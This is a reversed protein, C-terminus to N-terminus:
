LQANLLCYEIKYININLVKTQSSRAALLRPYNKKVIEMKKTM